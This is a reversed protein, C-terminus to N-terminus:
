TTQNNSLEKSKAKNNTIIKFQVKNKRNQQVKEFHCADSIRMFIESFYSYVNAPLLNKNKERCNEKQMERRCKERRCKKQIKAKHMKKQIKRKQIKRKQIKGKQMKKQIKGKQMEKKQM